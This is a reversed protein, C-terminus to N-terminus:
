MFKRRRFATVDASTLEFWEGNKRRTQFRKHGYEEIGAPDDTKISHIVKVKEPLQIALERERRGVANSRGIKYFRGSKMLYVFGLEAPAELKASKDSEVAPGALPACMAAVDEYGAHEQCFRLLRAALAGKGGFRRFTNYSPFVPDNRGKIKIEGAVPFHGLERLLSSLTELLRNEPIAQQLQNPEFGAERVADGWRVWFRGHWDSERIGTEALFRGTGLPVGGNAAATRRIETLIHGKNTITWSLRANAGLGCAAVM